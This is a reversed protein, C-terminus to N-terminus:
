GVSKKLREKGRKKKAKKKPELMALMLEIMKRRLGSSRTIRKFLPNNEDIINERLYRKKVGAKVLAEVMFINERMMAKMETADYEKGRNGVFKGGEELIKNLGGLSSVRDIDVRGIVKKIPNKPKASETENQETEQKQQNESNHKRVAREIVMKTCAAREALLRKQGEIIKFDASRQAVSFTDARARQFADQLFDGRAGICVLDSGVKFMKIRGSFWGRKAKEVEYGENILKDFAVNGGKVDFGLKKKIEALYKERDETKVNPNREWLAKIAMSHEEALIREREKEIVHQRYAEIDKGRIITMGRNEFNKKVARNREEALNKHRGFEDETLNRFKEALEKPSKDMVDPGSLVEIAREKNQELEKLKGKKEEQLRKIDDSRGKEIESPVGWLPDQERATEIRKIRDNLDRIERPIERDGPEFSAGAIPGPKVPLSQETIEPKIEPPLGQPEGLSKRPIELGIGGANKNPALGLEVNLANEPKGGQQSPLIESSERGQQGPEQELRSNEM